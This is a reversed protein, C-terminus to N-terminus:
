AYIECTGGSLKNNYALEAHNLNFVYLPLCYRVLQIASVLIFILPIRFRRMVFFEELTPGLREMVMTVHEGATGFWRMFPIGPGDSLEEYTHIQHEFQLQRAKDSNLLIVVERGNVFSTGPM